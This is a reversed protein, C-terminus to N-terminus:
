WSREPDDLSSMDAEIFCHRFDACREAEAYIEEYITRDLEEDSTYPISLRYEWGKKDAKEMAFRSLVHREIEERVKGKGRVFKSNNEVRLWLRVRMVQSQPTPPNDKRTPKGQGEPNGSAKRHDGAGPKDESRTYKYYTNRSIGVIGCIEKVSRGPDKKLALAAKKKREDM